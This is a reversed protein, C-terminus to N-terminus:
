YQIFFLVQWVDTQSDTKYSESDVTRTGPLTSLVFGLQSPDRM